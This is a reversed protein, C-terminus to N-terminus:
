DNSRVEVKRYGEGMDCEGEELDDRVGEATEVGVKRRGVGGGSNGM